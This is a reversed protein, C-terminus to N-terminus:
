EGEKVSLLLTGDNDVQFNVATLLICRGNIEIHIPTDVSKIARAIACLRAILMRLTIAESKM